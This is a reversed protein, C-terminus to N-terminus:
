RREVKFSVGWNGYGNSTIGNRPSAIYNNQGPLITVKVIAKQGVRLVGSHVAATGLHSGTTYVGTGWIQGNNGGTVTYHFVKGIDNASNSVYGPDALVSSVRKGALGYVREVKFSVGWNGYGNSNVGNQMSATYNNQGPLITVKVVGQQGAKLVGSHVAAMGLHSGTTYIDTGYISGGNTVGTVTYYFVKGVDNAPNNVYGPDALTNTVGDRLSRILDRIVIAEDLKTEKCLLDQLRKLGVTAQNRRVEVETEAKKLIAATDDQYVKYIERAAAPLDAASAENTGAQISRILDRVAVAEDLKAEKCMRDQVKKLEVTTKEGRKKVEAEYKKDLEVISEEYEKLLKKAAPPLETQAPAQPVWSLLAGSLVVLTVAKM